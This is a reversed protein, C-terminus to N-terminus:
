SGNNYNISIPKINYENVWKLSVAEEEFPCGGVRQWLNYVPIQRALQDDRFSLIKNQRTLALHGGFSDCYLPEHPPVQNVLWFSDKDKWVVAKPEKGQSRSILTSVFTFQGVWLSGSPRRFDLEGNSTLKQQQQNFYTFLLFLCTAKVKDRPCPCQRQNAQTFVLGVMCWSYNLTEISCIPNCKRAWLFFLNDVHPTFWHTFSM